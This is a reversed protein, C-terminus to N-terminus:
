NYSLLDKTDHQKLETGLITGTVHLLPAVGEKSLAPFLFKEMPLEIEKEQISKGSM